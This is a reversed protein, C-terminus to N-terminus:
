SGNEGDVSAVDATPEADDSASEADNACADAATPSQRQYVVVVDVLQTLSHRM